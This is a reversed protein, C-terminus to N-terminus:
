ITLLKVKAGTETVPTKSTEKEEMEIQVQEQDRPTYHGRACRCGGARWKWVVWLLLALLLLIIAVAAASVGATVKDICINSSLCVMTAPQSKVVFLSCNVSCSAELQVGGCERKHLLFDKCGRLEVSTLTHNMVLNRDAKESIDKIVTGNRDEWSTICKPSNPNESTQYRFSGEKSKTVSCNLHSTAAAAASLLVILLAAEKM